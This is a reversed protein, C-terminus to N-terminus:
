KWAGILLVLPAAIMVGDWGWLNALVGTVTIAAVIRTAITPNIKPRGDGGSGALARTLKM